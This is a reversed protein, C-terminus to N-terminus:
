AWASPRVEQDVLWPNGVMPASACWPGPQLPADNAAVDQLAPLRHLAHFIRALPGPMRVGPESRSANAPHYAACLLPLMEYHWGAGCLHRLLARGMEIWPVEEDSDPALKVAWVLM